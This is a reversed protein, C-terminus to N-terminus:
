GNLHMLPITNCKPLDKASDLDRNNFSDEKTGKTEKDGKASFHVLGKFTIPSPFHMSSEEISGELGEIQTAPV